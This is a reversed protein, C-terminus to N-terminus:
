AGFQRVHHDFHRYSFRGWSTHTMRGFLPHEPWETQGTRGVFRDVLLELSTLDANWTTPATLFMEPSGKIGGKPWRLWNMVVPKVLPWGRVDSHLAVRYEGLTYRMQDVLHVLMRPASMLGWRPPTAPPLNRLRTVMRQRWTPDLLTKM